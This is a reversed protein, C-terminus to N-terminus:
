VVAPAPRKATTYRYVAENRGGPDPNGLFTDYQRARASVLSARVALDVLERGSAGAPTPPTAHLPRVTLRVRGPPFTRPATGLVLRVARDGITGDVLLPAVVTVSRAEPATTVLAAAG